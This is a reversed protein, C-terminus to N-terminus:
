DVNFFEPMEYFLNDEMIEWLEAEGQLLNESEDSISIDSESCKERPEEDSPM